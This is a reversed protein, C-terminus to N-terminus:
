DPIPKAVDELQRGQHIQAISRDIILDLTWEIMIRIRNNFEPLKALYLTRWFFWGLFGSLTIGMVEVAAFHEGVSVLSGYDFYKFDGIPQGKLTRAISKGTYTGQQLAVQALPPFPKGSRPDIASAADGLIFINKDVTARLNSDVLLRGSKDTELDLNQVLEAPTVGACWITTYAQLSENTTLIVRDIQVEKVRTNFITDIGLGSIREQTIKQLKRSWGPLVTEGSQVITVSPIAPDIELYRDLLVGHILDHLETAVEIGTAGAGIVVFNLLKAQEERDDFSAAREFLDIVRNRLIIADRMERMFFAFEEVGPLNYTNVRAGPALVLFDYKYDVKLIKLTHDSSEREVTGTILRQSRDITQVNVKRFNIRTTELIRRFPFSVQRVELVGTAASPLLPPFLFYNNRDLLTVELDPHYGLKRHLTLATYLGGFGGGIIVVRIPTGGNGRWRTYMWLRSVGVMILITFAAANLLLLSTLYFKNASWISYYLWLGLDILLICATVGIVVGRSKRNMPTAQFLFNSVSITLVLGSLHALSLMLCSSFQAKGTEISPPLLSDSPVAEIILKWSLLYLALGLAQLLSYRLKAALPLNPLTITTQRVTDKRGKM